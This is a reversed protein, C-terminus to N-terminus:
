RLLELNIGKAYNISYIALIKTPDIVRISFQKEDLVLPIETCGWLIGEAGDAQLSSAIELMTKGPEKKKGAKVEYISDM